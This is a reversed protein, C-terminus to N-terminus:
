RTKQTVKSINSLSLGFDGGNALSSVPTSASAKKMLELSSLNNKMYYIAPSHHIGRVARLENTLLSLAKLSYGYMSDIHTYDTEIYPDGGSIDTSEFMGVEIDGSYMGSEREVSIDFGWTMWGGLRSKYIIFGGDASCGTAQTTNTITPKSDVATPDALTQSILPYGDWRGSLDVGEVSAETLDQTQTVAPSFNKFMRGGIIPLKYVSINATRDSNSNILFNYKYKSVVSHWGDTTDTIDTISSYKYVDADYHQRALKMLDISIPLNPIIDYTGYDLKTEIINNSDTTDIIQLDINLYQADVDDETVSIRLPEFLYCYSCTDNAVQGNIETNITIAM